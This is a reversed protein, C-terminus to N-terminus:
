STTGKASQSALVEASIIGRELAVAGLRGRLENRGRSLRSMVTGIPTDMIDAIEKYSMQEVCALYVVTRREEPLEQLASVIEPDGFRDLAEIEASASLNEPREHLRGLDGDEFSDLGLSETVRRQRRRVENIATNRVIRHLWGVLNTGPRFTHFSSYAKQLATQAIDNAEEVPDAFGGTFSRAFRVVTGQLPGVDRIFRATRQEPTEPATDIAAAAAARQIPLDVSPDDTPQTPSALTSMTQLPVEEYTDATPQDAPQTTPESDSERPERLAPHTRNPEMAQCHVFPVSLRQATALGGFEGLSPTLALM